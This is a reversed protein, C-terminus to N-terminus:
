EEPSLGPCGYVEGGGPEGMGEKRRIARIKGLVLSDHSPRESPFSVRQGM